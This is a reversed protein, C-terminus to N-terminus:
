EPAPSPRVHRSPSYRFHLLYLGSIAILVGAGKMWSIPEGLFFVGGSTTVIPVLYLSATVTSAEMRSLCWYWITFGFIMGPFICFGLALWASWEMSLIAPIYNESLAPILCLSAIMCPLALLVTPSYRDVIEKSIVTNITWAIPTMIVFILSIWWDIGWTERSLTVLVVGAMSLFISVMRGPVWKERGTITAIFYVLLPEIAVFVSATGVTVNLIGYNFLLMPTIPSFLTILAFLKFDDRLMRAAESRKKFMVFALYIAAATFFRTFTLEVPTFIFLLKKLFVPVIGWIILVSALSIYTLRKIDSKKKM